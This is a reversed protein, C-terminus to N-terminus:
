LLKEPSLNESLRAGGKGAGWNEGANKPLDRGM